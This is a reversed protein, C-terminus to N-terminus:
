DKKSVMHLTCILDLELFCINVLFIYWTIFNNDQVYDALKSSQKKNFFNNHIM